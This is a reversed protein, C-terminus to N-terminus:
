EAERWFGLLEEDFQEPAEAYAAAWEEFTPLQIQLRLMETAREVVSSYSLETGLAHERGGSSTTEPQAEAREALEYIEDPTLRLLRDALRASCWDLYKARLVRGGEPDAAMAKSETLRPRM